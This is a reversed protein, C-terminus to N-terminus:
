MARLPDDYYLLSFSQHQRQFKVAMVWYQVADHQLNGGQFDNFPLYILYLIWVFAMRWGVALPTSLFDRVNNWSM